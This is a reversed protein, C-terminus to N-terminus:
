DAAMLKLNPSIGLIKIFQVHDLRADVRSTNKGSEQMWLDLLSKMYEESAFEQKLKELMAQSQQEWHIYEGEAVQRQGYVETTWAVFGSDMKDLFVM